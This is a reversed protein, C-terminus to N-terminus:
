KPSRGGCTPVLHVGAGSRPQPLSAQHCPLVGLNFEGTEANDKMHRTPSTKDAVDQQALTLTM